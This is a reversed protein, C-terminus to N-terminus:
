TLDPRDGVETKLGRRGERRCQLSEQVPVVGVLWGVVVEVEMEVDM